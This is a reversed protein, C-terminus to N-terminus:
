YLERLSLGVHLESALDAFRIELITFLRTWTREKIIWGFPVIALYSGHVEVRESRIPGARNPVM